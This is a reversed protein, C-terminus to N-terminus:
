ATIKDYVPVFGVSAGQTDFLEVKRVLTGLATGAAANAIGVTGDKLLVGNVRSNVVTVGNVRTGALAVGNVTEDALAVGGVEAGDDASIVNGTRISARIQNGLQLLPRRSVILNGTLMSAPNTLAITAERLFIVSTLVQGTTKHLDVLLPGEALADPTPIVNLTSDIITGGGNVVVRPEDAAYASYAHLRMGNVLHDTHFVRAFTEVSGRYEFNSLVGTNEIAYPHRKLRKFERVQDLQAHSNLHADVALDGIGNLRLAPGRIGVLTNNGSITCATMSTSGPFMDSRYRSTLGFVNDATYVVATDGRIFTNHYGSVECGHNYIGVTGNGNAASADSGLRITVDRVAVHWSQAGFPTGPETVRGCLIGVGSPDDGPATELLLDEVTCFSSGVLDVIANERGTAGRVV